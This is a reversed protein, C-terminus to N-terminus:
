GYFYTRWSNLQRNLLNVIEPFEFFSVIKVSVIDSVSM